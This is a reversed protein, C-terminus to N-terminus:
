RTVWLANEVYLSKSGKIWEKNEREERDIFGKELNTSHKMKGQTLAKITKKKLATKLIDSVGM